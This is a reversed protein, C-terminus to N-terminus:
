VSEGHLETKRTLALWAAIVSMLKWVNLGGKIDKEGELAQFRFTQSLNSVPRPVNYMEMGDSSRVM